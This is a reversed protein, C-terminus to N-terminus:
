NFLSLSEVEEIRNYSEPSIDEADILHDAYKTSATLYSKNTNTCMCVTYYYDGLKLDVFGKEKFSEMEDDAIRRLLTKIGNACFEFYKGQASNKKFDRAMINGVDNKWNTMYEKDAEPKLILMSTDGHKVVQVLGMSFSAVNSFIYEKCDIQGREACADYLQKIEEITEKSILRQM